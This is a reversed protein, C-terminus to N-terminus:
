GRCSLCICGLSLIILPLYWCADFLLNYFKIQGHVIEVAQMWPRNAFFLVLRVIYFIIHVPILLLGFVLSTILISIRVRVLSRSSVRLIVSRLRPVYSSRFLIFCPVSRGVFMSTSQMAGRLLRSTRRSPRPESSTRYLLLSQLLSM